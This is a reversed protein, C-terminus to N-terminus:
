VGSPDPRRGVLARLVESFAAGSVAPDAARQAGIGLALGVV